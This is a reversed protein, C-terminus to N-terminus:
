LGEHSKAQELVKELWGARRSKTKWNVVGFNRLDKEVDDKWRM